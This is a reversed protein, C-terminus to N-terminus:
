EAVLISTIYYETEGFCRTPVGKHQEYHLVVRKGMSRNIQEAVADSRVSFMFKEPISGPVPVMALEGEWTKCLWGKHSFKQVYGAREGSSFSWTLTFWTYGAAAGVILVVVIFFWLLIKSKKIPM